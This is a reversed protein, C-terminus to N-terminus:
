VVIDIDIGVAERVSMSMTTQHIRMLTVTLLWATVLMYPLRLLSQNYLFAAFLAFYSLFVIVTLDRVTRTELLKMGAMLVLLATGADIGNITRYDLLVALLAVFALVGRLWKPPLEWRKVEIAVRLAAAGAALLLVGREFTSLEFASCLQELAPPQSFTWVGPDLLTDEAYASPASVAADASSRLTTELHIRLASIAAALYRQNAEVWTLSANSGSASDPMAGDGVLTEDHTEDTMIPASM